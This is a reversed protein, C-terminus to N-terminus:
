EGLLQALSLPPHGTIRQVDDTVEALEGAAIAAYTSVWADLQWQPAEFEARSAYAEDITESQYRVERGTVRTIIESVQDLDLSEPGTLQYTRGDHVSHGKKADAASELVAVAADIVDARAVAAVRGNGAPGRLVGEPGAFDLFQDAYLNNRLFTFTLGLERVRKETYWHDRALLFTSTPSAGFFSTYVIRRVGASGAADIFTLHDHLRNPEEVGSVMFLTTIGTLAEESAASEGYSAVAVEADPISPTRNPSRVILRQRIGDAALRRAVGGGIVGTAGTVAVGASM